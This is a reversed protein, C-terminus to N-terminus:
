MKVRQQRIITQSYYIFNPMELNSTMQPDVLFAKGKTEWGDRRRKAIERRLTDYVGNRKEKPASLM